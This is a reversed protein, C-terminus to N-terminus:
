GLIASVGLNKFTWKDAVREIHLLQGLGGGCTRHNCRSYAIYVLGEKGDSTFAVRSFMQRAFNADPDTVQESKYLMPPGIFYDADGFAEAKELLADPVGLKIGKRVGAPFAITVPSAYVTQEPHDAVYQKLWDDYVAVEEFSVKTPMPHVNRGCGSFAVALACLFVTGLKGLNQM